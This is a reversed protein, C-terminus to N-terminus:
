IVAPRTQFHLRNAMRALWSREDPDFIDRRQLQVRRIVLASDVSPITDATTQAARQLPGLLVALPLRHRVRLLVGSYSFRVWGFLLLNNKSWHLWATSSATPNSAVTGCRRNRTSARASWGGWSVPASPARSMPGCTM